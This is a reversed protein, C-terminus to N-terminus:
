SRRSSLIRARSKKLQEDTVTVKMAAKVVSESSLIADAPLDLLYGVMEKGNPFTMLRKSLLSLVGLAVRLLFNTGTSIVLDMIRISTPYPLSRAFLSTFWPRIFTTTHIGVSALHKALQPESSRLIEELVASDISTSMSTMAVYHEEVFGEFLGYAEDVDFSQMLVLAAIWSLDADRAQKPHRYGYVALMDEVNSFGRSFARHSAFKSCLVPQDASFNRLLKFQKAVSAFELRLPAQPVRSSQLWAYCKTRLSPPLHKEVIQKTVKKAAAPTYPKGILALQM